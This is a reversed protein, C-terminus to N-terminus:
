QLLAVLEADGSHRIKDAATQGNRDRLTPDAGARLLLRVSDTRQGLSEAAIMLATRGDGAQANVFPHAQLLRRVVDPDGRAAALMLATYGSANGANVDAGHNILADVLVLRDENTGGAFESVTAVADVLPTRGNPDKARVDVPVDREIPQLAGAAGAPPRWGPDFPPQRAAVAKIDGLPIWRTWRVPVGDVVRAREAQRLGDAEMRWFRYDRVDIAAPLRDGCAAYVVYPPSAHGTIFVMCDPEYYNRDEINRAVLVPKGNWDRYLHMPRWGAEPLGQSELHFYWPGGIGVMDNKSPKSVCAVVLM